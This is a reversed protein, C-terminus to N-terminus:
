EISRLFTATDKSSYVSCIFSLIVPLQDCKFFHPEPRVPYMFIHQPYWICIHYWDDEGKILRLEERNTKGMYFTMGFVGVNIGPEEVAEEVWASAKSGPDMVQGRDTELDAHDAHLTLQLGPGAAPKVVSLIRRIEGISLGDTTTPWFEHLTIKKVGEM